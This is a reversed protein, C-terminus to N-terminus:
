SEDNSGGLNKFVGNYFFYSLDLNTDDTIGPNNKHVYERISQLQSTQNSVGSKDRSRYSLALIEEPLALKKDILYKLRQTIVTTKGTGAGGFAAIKGGRAFPAILDIVKIGTELISPSNEQDVLSPAPKHIPEYKEAKVEGKMDIPEGLVNFIRGLTGPGVPVKIPSGTDIVEMGRKVGDTTGMALARVQNNGMIQQVELVLKSDDAKKVILASFINPVVSPFEVEVVVSVIKTIKGKNIKEKTKETSAM